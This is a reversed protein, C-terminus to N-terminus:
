TRQGHLDEDAHLKAVEAWCRLGSFGQQRVIQCFWPTYLEPAVAIQETVTAVDSWAWLDAESDDAVPDGDHLGVYVHDFEHEILEKTVRARYLFTTAQWLPCTLGMEEFLRRSAAACTEEAPRPHGCCTNTWLGGSHYKGLARRQLLLRGATDFVFISFARHLLGQRHVALKEGIGLAQDDRDVLIVLEQDGVGNM